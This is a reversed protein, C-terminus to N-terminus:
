ALLKKMFLSAEANRLEALEAAYEPSDAVNDFENPDKELDFLEYHTRGNKEIHIYKMRGDSVCFFGEGEGYVYRYGGEAMLHKFDRGDTENKMMGAANLCTAMIDTLMVKAESRVAQRERPYQVLMPINLVDEYGCDGKGWIGHNGLMEGHDATFIVLLNDGFKRYATELIHGIQDDIQAINAYYSKRLDHWYAETYNKQAFEDASFSGDSIGRGDGHYSRHHIRREDDFEGELLTRPKDKAMDVRDFYAEPPDFPYHPGSFSAWCFLPEEPNHGELREVTKRGVWSDPHWEEPGPFPFVKRKNRDWTFDRYAKLYGAKDLEKAYDDYFWVSVQKDDQLDLHDIGLSLYYAKFEDYPLTRDARTEGYPVPAFHCKGHVSTRYGAKKLEQFLNPVGTSLECKRFNSYAGSNHPYRGTLLACRAPLCWPSATYAKDFQIAQAALRDLNPTEIAENGYCSLADKRLEDATILLIHPKTSM